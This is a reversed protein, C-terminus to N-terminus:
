RAPILFPRQYSGIHRKTLLWDKTFIEPPVYDHSFVRRDIKILTRHRELHNEMLIMNARWMNRNVRKLDHRTQRKAQRNQRDFYDTRVIFLNKKNIYHRRLHFALRTKTRKNKPVADVVYCSSNSIKQDPKRTYRFDSPDEGTLDEVSFDTGLFNPSQDEAAASDFIKGFSPMYIGSEVHGRKSRVALLAVGKVEAPHDFVLLFKVTGDNELRLFRRLKRVDRNGAEDMLIMTQEEFVHPFLEHRKHAEEVVHRGTWDDDGLAFGVSQLFVPWTLFLFTGIFRLRKKLRITYVPAEM